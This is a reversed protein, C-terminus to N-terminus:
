ISIPEPITAQANILRQALTYQFAMSVQTNTKKRSFASSSSCFVAQMYAPFAWHLLTPTSKVLQQIIKKTKQLYKYQQLLQCKTRQPCTVDRVRDNEGFNACKVTADANNKASCSDTRHSEACIACCPQIRWNRTRTKKEVCQASLQVVYSTQVMCCSRTRSRVIAFAIRYDIYRFFM